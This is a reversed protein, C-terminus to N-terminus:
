PSFPVSSSPRFSNCPSGASSAANMSPASTSTQWRGGIVREISSFTAGGSLSIPTLRPPGTLMSMRAALCNLTVTTLAGPRLAEATASNVMPAIRASVRIIVM